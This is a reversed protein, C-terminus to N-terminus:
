APPRQTTFWSLTALLAGATIGAVLTTPDKWWFLKPYAIIGLLVAVLWVELISQGRAASGLLLRRFVFYAFLLAHGSLPILAGLRVSSLGVILSIQIALEITPRRLGRSRALDVLDALLLGLVPFALLMYWFPAMEPLPTTGRLVPVPGQWILWGAGVLTCALGIALRFLSEVAFNRDTLRISERDTRSFYSM